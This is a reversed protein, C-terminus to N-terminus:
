PSPNFASGYAELKENEEPTGDAKIRSALEEFTVFNGNLYNIQVDDGAGFDNKGDKGLTRLIYSRDSLRLYTYPNGDADGRNPLTEGSQALAEEVNNPLTHSKELYRSIIGSLRDFYKQNKRKNSAASEYAVGCLIAVAVAFILSDKYTKRLKRGSMIVSYVFVVISLGILLKLGIQELYFYRYRLAAGAIVLILAIVITRREPM